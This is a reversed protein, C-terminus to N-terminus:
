SEAAQEVREGALSVLDDDDVVALAALLDRLCFRSCAHADDRRALVEPKRGAGVETCALGAAVHEDEEIGVGDDRRAGEVAEPPREFATRDPDRHGSQPEEVPGLEEVGPAGIHVDAADPPRGAVALRGFRHSLRALDGRRASSRHRDAGLGEVPEAPKGLLEEHVELVDLEAPARMEGPETHDDIGFRVDVM